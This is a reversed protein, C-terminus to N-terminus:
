LISVSVMARYDFRSIMYNRFNLPGTIFERRSVTKVARRSILRLRLLDGACRVYSHAIERGAFSICIDATIESAQGREIDAEVVIEGKHINPTMKLLTLHVPDVIELWVDKWIGTTQVYWCRFSEERWRQKGRLQQEDFSDEAMVTIINQEELEETIDFSFRSYGGLHEGAKRGNIWCDDSLRM